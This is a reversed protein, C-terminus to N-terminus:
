SNDLRARRSGRRSCVYLLLDQAEEDMDEPGDSIARWLDSFDSETMREVLFDLAELAVGEDIAPAGM